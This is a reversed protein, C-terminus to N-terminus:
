AAGKKLRNWDSVIILNNEYQIIPKEHKTTDNANCGFSTAYQKSIDSIHDEVGQRKVDDIASFAISLGFDSTVNDNLNFDSYGDITMVTVDFGSTGPIKEAQLFLQKVQTTEFVDNSNGNNEVEVTFFRGDTSLYVEAASEFAGDKHWRLLEDRAPPTELGIRQALESLTYTM